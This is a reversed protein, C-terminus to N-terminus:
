TPEAMKRAWGDLANERSRHEFRYHVILWALSQLAVLGPLHHCVVLGSLTCSSTTFSYKFIKRIKNMVDFLAHFIISFSM